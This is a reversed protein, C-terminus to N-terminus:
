HDDCIWDGLLVIIMCNWLSSNVHFYQAAKFVVNVYTDMLNRVLKGSFCTKIVPVGGGKWKDKQRCPVSM